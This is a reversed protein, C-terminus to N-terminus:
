AKGLFKLLNYMIQAVEERTLEDLPRFSGDGDGKMLGLEYVKKIAPYSWRSQDIDKFNVSGGGLVDAFLKVYPYNKGPCDTNAIENHLKFFAKPFKKKLDKCVNVLKNYQTQGMKEINFNGMCCVAISNQNFVGSPSYDGIDRGCQPLTVDENAGIWLTGDQSIIYHYMNPFWKGNYNSAEKVLMDMVDKGNKAGFQAGGLNHLIIAKIERM